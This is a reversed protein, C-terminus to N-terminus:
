RRAATLLLQNPGEWGTATAFVGLREEMEAWAAAAAPPELKSLISTVPSASDRIFALYDHVSPLRFPADIRTTAVDRFGARQFMSDVRGPGGLSLVGGPQFPDLPPLGAHKLATSMITTVCPNHAPDAFVMVCVRGGPKLARHMEHVGRQADPFFMLGLRSVVADFSADDVPLNEGDAVQVHVQAHGAQAANRQALALIAPSLDTALVCGQPGVRAAIDLTQDGSGAAVDLVRLGPAVGAMDLMAETAVALWARIRPAHHNWGEACGDWQQRTAAKLAQPDV